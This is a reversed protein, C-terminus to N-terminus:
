CPIENYEPLNVFLNEIDLNTKKSKIIDIVNVYESYSEIEEYLINDKMGPVNDRFFNKAKELSDFGGYVEYNGMPDNKSFIAYGSLVGIFIGRIPHYVIVKKSRKNSKSGNPYM